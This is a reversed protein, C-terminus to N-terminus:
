SGKSILSQMTVRNNKLLEQIIKDMIKGLVATLCYNGVNRRVKRSFQSMIQWKFYIPVKGSEWPLQTTHSLFGAIVDAVERLVRPHIENPGM